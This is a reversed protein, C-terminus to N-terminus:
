SFSGLAAFRLLASHHEESGKMVVELIGADRAEVGGWNLRERRRIFRKGAMHVSGALRKLIEQLKEIDKM